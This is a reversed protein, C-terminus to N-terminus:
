KKYTTSRNYQVNFILLILIRVYNLYLKNIINKILIIKMFLKITM